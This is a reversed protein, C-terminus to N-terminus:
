KGFTVKSYYELVQRRVLALAATVSCQRIYNRDGEFRFEKVKIDGGLSVGIYVLGVPKEDTGGDPGAIGTVSVGVNAKVEAAAGKAMEKATNESVAGFKDLTRNKVGLVTHKSKNSYTIFGAKFVDSVGPVNVLRSSILGGTCSEATAITLKNAILLDVVAKELTVEEQATYIKDSYKEKLAKTITKVSKKAEKESENSSKVRVHVEGYFEDVSVTVDSFEGAFNQAASEVKSRTVGCLKILQSFNDSAM